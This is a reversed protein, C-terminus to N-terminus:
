KFKILQASIDSHTLPIGWLVGPTAVAVTGTRYTRDAFILAADAHQDRVAKAVNGESDTTISGIIVYPRDPFQGPMYLSAKDVVKVYGGPQTQWNQQQGVYPSFTYGPGCGCAFLLFLIPLMRKVGHQPGQEGGTKVVGDNNTANVNKM